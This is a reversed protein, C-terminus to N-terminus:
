KVLELIGWLDLSPITIRTHTADSSLDLVTPEARPAHLTACAFTRGGFLDRRLRLVFGKQPVMADKGADYQRNLLHVVAPRDKAARPVAWVHTTGELAVPAPLLSDLRKRDPWTVLRGDAAVAELVAQQKPDLELTKPAIVAKFPRLQARTIRYDPLWDDGAVVVTFPVNAAALSTCIAQIRGRGKRHALNGYVIAAPAVTDYGDLLRAQDRVFRYLWGYEETPGAYWHTGKEKTYCWQRHPAMLNHGFAYSLATWTRVLGPLKHEMVFAWDQGSATSAVPRGLGDALKYIAVPHTACRRTAANHHVECCFNSLLPAAVLAHPSNLGSNVSLGLPRGRLEEARRHYAAVFDNAAMIQFHHFEAALPLRGRQKKYTEATVGRGLLFQRYDFADLDGVGLKTLSERPVHKALYGRFAAMCHRCFCGSLWTVCGSTGRYDDIHLGDPEAKMVEVLRSELYKRYLPSNTCWWWARQGKHRHHHDWLWPVIFTEGAFNRCAADLFDASFDIVRKFETLFGVSCSFRRVGKAHAQRIHERAPWGGWGLVTCGYAEYVKPNDYMFVVDSRRIAREPSGAM